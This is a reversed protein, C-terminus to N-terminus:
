NTKKVFEPKINGTVYETGLHQINISALRDDNTSYGCRNCKYLHLEHDRNEKNIRGCRPCRQSTYKASVEIVKSHNLEAKYTLFQELQYFAWSSHEYRNEKKRNKTTDFTVGTLDELVFLTNKGYQYVINSQASAITKLDKPLISLPDDKELRKIEFTCPWLLDSYLNSKLEKLMEQYGDQDTIYHNKDLKKAARALKSHEITGSFDPCMYQFTLTGYTTM